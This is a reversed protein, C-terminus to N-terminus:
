ILQQFLKWLLLRTCVEPYSTASIAGYEECVHDASDIAVFCADNLWECSQRRQTKPLSHEPKADRCRSATDVVKLARRLQRAKKAGEALKAIVTTSDRNSSTPEAIKL